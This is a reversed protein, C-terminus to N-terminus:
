PKYEYSGRLLSNMITDDNIHPLGQARFSRGDVAYHLASHYFYCFRGCAGLHAYFM